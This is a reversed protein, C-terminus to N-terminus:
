GRSGCGPAIGKTQPLPAAMGDREPFAGESVRGLTAGEATARAYLGGPRYNNGAPPLSEVLAIFAGLAGPTKGSHKSFSLLGPFHEQRRGPTGRSASIVPIYHEENVKLAAFLSFVPTNVGTTERQPLRPQRFPLFVYVGCDLWYAIKVNKRSKQLLGHRATGGEIAKRLSAGEAGGQFHTKAM